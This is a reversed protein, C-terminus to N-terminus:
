MRFSHSFRPFNSAFFSSPIEKPYKVVLRAYLTKLLLVFVTISDMLTTMSSSMVFTAILSLPSHVIELSVITSFSAWSTSTSSREGFLSDVRTFELISILDDNLDELGRM